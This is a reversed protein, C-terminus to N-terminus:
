DKAFILVIAVALKHQHGEVVIVVIHVVEFGKQSVFVLSNIKGVYM